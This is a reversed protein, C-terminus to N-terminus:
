LTFDQGMKNWEMGSWGQGGQVSGPLVAIIRTVYRIKSQKKSRWRDDVNAEAEADV